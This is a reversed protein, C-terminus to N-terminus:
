MTKGVHRFYGTNTSWVLAKRVVAFRGSADDVTFAAAFGLQRDQAKMTNTTM